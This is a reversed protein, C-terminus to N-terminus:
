QSASPPRLLALEARLRAAQAPHERALDDLLQDEFRARERFYFQRVSLGELRATAAAPIAAAVVALLAEEGAQQSIRLLLEKAAIAAQLAEGNGREPNM